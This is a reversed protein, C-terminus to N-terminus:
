EHLYAKLLQQAYLIEKMSQDFVLTSANGIWNNQEGILYHKGYGPNLGMQWAKRRRALKAEMIERPKCAGYELIIGAKIPNANPYFISDGSIQIQSCYKSILTVRYDPKAYHYIDWFKGVETEGTNKFCYCPSKIQNFGCESAATITDVIPTDFVHFMDPAFWVFWDPQIVHLVDIMRQQLIDLHFADNTDIQQSMINNEQLWEWTGDDSMNDIIYIGCGQRQYYKIADEIYARENYVFTIALVKKM